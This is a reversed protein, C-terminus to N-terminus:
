QGVAVARCAQEVAVLVSDGLGQRCIPYLEHRCEMFHAVIVPDWQTGAGELMIEDIRSPPLAPRYPRPSMMADCSDAVALLRAMFPIQEGALGDPYGTGDYREHHNRVGPRLHVLQKVNSLILDGLVPHQKALAFEEPTLKGPKQLVNDRLGIKGIDHLLGALYLDGLLAGGLKMHQGLRVANRAVRESHGGTYPDRADITATLCRVLGFLTEKLKEETRAHQCQSVFMRGALGMIKLDTRRLPRDPQFSLAVIWIGKSKSVRVMASSRPLPSGDPMRLSLQSRLQQSEGGSSDLLMRAFARCWEPALDRDSLVHVADDGPGPYWFVADAHISDRVAQLAFRIQETAQTASQLHRLFQELVGWADDPRASPVPTAPGPPSHAPSV